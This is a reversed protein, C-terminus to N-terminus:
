KKIKIWKLSSYEGYVKEGDIKKYGRVLVYYTTNKKLNSIKVGTKKVCRKKMGSMSITDGDANALKRKLKKLTKQNCAGVSVEYGDVNKLKKIYFQLAQKKKNKLSKIAARGIEPNEEDLDEWITDDDEVNTSFKSVDSDQSITSVQTGVSVQTTVPKQTTVPAQTTAPKQTTVPAQTTPNSINVTYHGLMVNSGAGVNIAYLYVVQSGRKSTTITTDFGHNGVIGYASNVDPRSTNAMIVHGEAGNAGAEGGIYVHVQISTQSSDADFAWGRVWIKGAQRSQCFDVCGDPNKGLNYNITGYGLIYSDSMSYSKRRVGDSSNGEITTIRGNSVSEVIGCHNPASGFAVYDGAQPTYTGRAHWLGRSNFWDRTAYGVRPYNNSNVSASQMCWWVFYACWPQGNGVGLDRAYKTYNGSGSNATFDDLNSNSSKEHYGVQSAAINLLEIQTGNGACVTDITQYCNTFLAMVLVMSICRRLNRYRNCCLFREKM